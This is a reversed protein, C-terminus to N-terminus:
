RRVVRGSILIWSFCVAWLGSSCIASVEGRSHGIGGRTYLHDHLEFMPCFRRSIPTQIYWESYNQSTKLSGSFNCAFCQKVSIKMKQACIKARKTRGHDNQHAHFTCVNKSFSEHFRKECFTLVEQNPLRQWRLKLSMSRSFTKWHTEQARM